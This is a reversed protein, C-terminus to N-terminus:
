RRAMALNGVRMTWPFGLTNDLALIWGREAADRASRGCGVDLAHARREMACDQVSGYYGAYNPAMQCSTSISM